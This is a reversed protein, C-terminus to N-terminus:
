CIIFVNLSLFDLCSLKSCDRFGSFCYEQLEPVSELHLNFRFRVLNKVILKNLAAILLVRSFTLPYCFRGYGVQFSFTIQIKAIRLWYHPNHLLLYPFAIAFLKRSVSPSSARSELWFFLHIELSIFQTM